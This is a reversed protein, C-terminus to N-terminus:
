YVIVVEEEEDRHTLKVYLTQYRESYYWGSGADSYDPDDEIDRGRLFLASFPEMGQIFFYHTFGAPFSFTLRLEADTRRSRVEKAATWLWTGPRIEPYLPIERPIYGGSVIYDYVEEPTTIEHSDLKTFSEAVIDGPLFGQDDSLSLVSLILKQGLRMFDPNGSVESAKKLIYGARVSELINSKKKGRDSLFLGQDTQIIHPVLHTLILNKFKQFYPEQIDLWKAVDYYADIMGLCTSIDVADPNVKNVIRSVLEDLLQINGRDLLLLIVNPTKFVSPDEELILNEVEKLMSSDDERIKAAVSELNGLFPSTIFPLVARRNDSEHQDFASDILSGVRNYERRRYSRVERSGSELTEAELTSIRLSESFLGKAINEDFLLSDDKNVWKEYNEKYRGSKWHDYAKSIYRDVGNDYEKETVPYSKELYWYLYPDQYEKEGKEMYILPFYNKESCELILLKNNEDIRSGYQLSLFFQEFSATCTVIPIGDPKEKNKGKIRYPILLKEILGTTGPPPFAKVAIEARTGVDGSVNISVILGITYRVEIKKEFVTYTEISCEEKKGNEYEVMFPHTGSLGLDFGGFHVNLDIIRQQSFLTSRSKAGTMKLYGISESKLPDKGLFHFLFFIVIVLIYVVPIVFYLIKIKKKM